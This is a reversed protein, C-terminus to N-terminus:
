FTEPPSLPGCWQCVYKELIECLSQDWDSGVWAVMTGFEVLQADIDWIKVITDKEDKRRLWYFGNMKPLDCIWEM